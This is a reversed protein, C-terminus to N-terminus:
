LYLHMTTFPIKNSFDRSPAFIKNKFLDEIATHINWIFEPKARLRSPSRRAQVCPPTPANLQAQLSKMALTLHWGKM